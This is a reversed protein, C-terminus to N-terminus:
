ADLTKTSFYFVAVTENTQMDQFHREMQNKKNAIKFLELVKRDVFYRHQRRQVELLENHM